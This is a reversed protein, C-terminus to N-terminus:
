REKGILLAEAIPGKATSDEQHGDSWVYLHGAPVVVAGRRGAGRLAQGKDFAQGNVILAGNQDIHISDGPLGAVYAFAAKPKEESRWYGILDGRELETVRAVPRLTVSDRGGLRTVETYRDPLTIQTYSRVYQVFIIVAVILAAPVLYSKVTYIFRLVHDM